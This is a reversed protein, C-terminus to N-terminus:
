RQFGVGVGAKALTRMARDIAFKTPAKSRQEQFLTDLIQSAAAKGIKLAMLKPNPKGGESYLGTLKGIQFLQADSAGGTLPRGKYTATGEVIYTRGQIIIKM